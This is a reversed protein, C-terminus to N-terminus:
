IMCIILPQHSSASCGPMSLCPVATTCTSTLYSSLSLPPLSHFLLSTLEMEFWIESGLKRLPTLSTGSFSACLCLELFIVHIQPHSISLRVSILTNQLWGDINSPLSAFSFYALKLSGVTDCQFSFLFRPVRQRRDFGIDLNVSKWNVLERLIIRHFHRLDWTRLPLQDRRGDTRSSILNLLPLYLFLM